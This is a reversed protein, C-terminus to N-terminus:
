SSVAGPFTLGSTEARQRTLSPSAVFPRSCRHGVRDEALAAMQDVEAVPQQSGEGLGLVGDLLGVGAPVGQRPALLVLDGRGAGPQGGDGAADAEVQQPRGAGAAFAIDALPDGLRQGVGGLPGGGVRGVADGQVLRDAHREENRELRHRRGLAYREDQVVDEAVGEVLHGLDGAAGRGRATLEGGRGPAADARGRWRGDVVGTQDAVELVGPLGPVDGGQDPQQVGARGEGRVAATQDGGHEV